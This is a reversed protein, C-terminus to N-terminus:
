FWLFGEKGRPVGPPKGATVPTIPHIAGIEINMMM